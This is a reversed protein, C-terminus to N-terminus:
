SGVFCKGSALLPLVTVTVAGDRVQGIICDKGQLVAAEIADAELGTPTRSQSVQLAAPAIGAGTLADAVQATAPKPSGAALRGLADTVTKKATETAAAEAGTSAPASSTDALPGAAATETATPASGALAAGTSTAAPAAEGSGPQVGPTTGSVCGSLGVLLAGAATAALLRRAASPWVFTPSLAAPAVEAPAASGTGATTKQRHDPTLRMTDNQWPGLTRKVVQAPLACGPPAVARGALSGLPCQCRAEKSQPNPSSGRKWIWRCLTAM